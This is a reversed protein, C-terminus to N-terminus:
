EDDNDAAADEGDRLRKNRDVGEKAAQLLILKGEDQSVTHIRSIKNKFFIGYVKDAVEVMEQKFSATIFQCSESQKKLLQAVSSRYEADLAADIEDFLYFPAPDSRQIAFILALAVLSKQGGSLQSLESVAGIGFGVQVRVASFPDKSGKPAKVLQMKAEAGDASVLEKFVQEFQYAVQKYTREIAEGRQKFCGILCACNEM